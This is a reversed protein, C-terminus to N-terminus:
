TRWGRWGECGAVAPWCSQATASALNHEGRVGVPPTDLPVQETEGRGKSLQMVDSRWSGKEGNGLGSRVDREGDVGMM